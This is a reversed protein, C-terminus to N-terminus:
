PAEEGGPGARPAWSRMKRLARHIHCSIEHATRGTEAALDQVKRIALYRECVLRCNEPEARRLRELLPTLREIREASGTREVENQDLLETASDALTHVSHRDLERLANVAVNYVIAALWSFLRDLTREGRFDDDQELARLWAEQVVDECLDRPVKQGGAFRLLNATIVRCFEDPLRTM